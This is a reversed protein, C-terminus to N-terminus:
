FALLSVYTIIVGVPCCSTSHMKYRHSGKFVAAATGVPNICVMSGDTFCSNTDEVISSAIHATDPLYNYLTVKFVLLWSDTPQVM